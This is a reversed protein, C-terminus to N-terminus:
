NLLNLKKEGSASFQGLEPKKLYNYVENNGADNNCKFEL